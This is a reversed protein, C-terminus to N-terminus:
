HVAQSMWGGTTGAGVAKGEGGEAGGGTGSGQSGGTGATPLSLSGREVEKRVQHLSSLLFTEVDSRQLLVEQLPPFVLGARVNHLLCSATTDCTM